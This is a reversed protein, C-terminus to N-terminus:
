LIDFDSILAYNGSIPLNNDYALLKVLSVSTKMPIKCSVDTPRLKFLPSHSFGIFLIVCCVGGYVTNYQM